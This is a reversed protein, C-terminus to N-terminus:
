QVPPQPNGQRRARMAELGEELTEVLEEFHEIELEEALGSLVRALREMRATTTM